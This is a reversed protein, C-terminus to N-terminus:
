QQLLDERGVCGPASRGVRQVGFGEALAAEHEAIEAAVVLREYQVLLREGHHPSEIGGASRQVAPQEAVETRQVVVKAIECLGLLDEALRERDLAGVQGG